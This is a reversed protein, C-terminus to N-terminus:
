RAGTSKTGEGTVEVLLGRDVREALEIGPYEVLVQREIDACLDGDGGVPGGHRISTEALAEAQAEDVAGM